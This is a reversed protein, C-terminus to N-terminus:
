RDEEEEIADLMDASTVIDRHRDAAFLSANDAVAEARVVPWRRKETIALLLVMADLTCTKPTTM